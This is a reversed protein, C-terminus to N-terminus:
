VRYRLEPDHHRHRVLFGGSGSSVMYISIVQFIARGANTPRKTMAVTTIFLPATARLLLSLLPIVRLAGGLETQL